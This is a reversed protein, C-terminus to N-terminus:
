GVKLGKKMGRKLRPKIEPRIRDRAPRVFPFAGMHVTGFELFRSWFTKRSPGIKISARNRKFEVKGVTIGEQVRHTDTRVHERMDDAVRQGISYLLPGVTVELNVGLRHLNGTTLKM